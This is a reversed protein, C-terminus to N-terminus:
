RDGERTTLETPAVPTKPHEYNWQTKLALWLGYGLFLVLATNAIMKANEKWPSM